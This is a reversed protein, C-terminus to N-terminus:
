AQAALGNLYDLAGQLIFAASAQDLSKKRKKRSLDAERIMAREVASSSLREDWLAVPLGSVVSLQAAFATAREAAPGDSGDLAKPLGVIAGAIDRGDMLHLLADIQAKPRAESIRAVPSAIRWDPDSVAVGLGTRGTDLGFLAGRAPLELVLDATKCIAMASSLKGVTEPM